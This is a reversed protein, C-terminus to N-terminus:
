ATEVCGTRSCEYQQGTQAAIVPDGLAADFDVGQHPAPRNGGRVGRWDGYYSLIRTTGEAACGALAVTNFLAAAVLVLRWGYGQRAMGVVVHGIGSWSDLWTRLAWLARDYSPSPLGAFGLAAM